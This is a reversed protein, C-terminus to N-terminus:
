GSSLPPSPPGTTAEPLVNYARYVGFARGLLLGLSAGFLIDVVVLVVLALTSPVVVPYEIFFASPGFIVIEAGFRIIFLVLYLVPVHWPLEYYWAGGQRRDFRVIRQIYPAALLAGVVPVAVYLAILSYAVTGWAVVAALITGAGLLGFILVYFAGFGFVRGASYRTGQMQLVTRRVLLAVILLIVIVEGSLPSSGTVERAM